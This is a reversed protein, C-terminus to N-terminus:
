GDHVPGEPATGEGRSGLTSAPPGLQRPNRARYIPDSRPQHIHSRYLVSFQDIPTLRHFPSSPSPSFPPLVAQSGTTKHRASSPKTRVQEILLMLSNEEITSIRVGDHRRPERGRQPRRPPHVPIRITPGHHRQWTVCISHFTECSPADTRLPNADICLQTKKPTM